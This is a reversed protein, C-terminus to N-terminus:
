PWLNGLDLTNGPEPPAAPALEGLGINWQDPTVTPRIAEATQDNWILFHFPKLKAVDAAFADSCREAIVKLDHEQTSHFFILYDSIARTNTPVNKPQHCTLFFHVRDRRSWRMAAQLPHDLSELDDKVLACEDIVVHFPRTPNTEIYHQVVTSWTVFADRLNNERPTYILERIEGQVMTAYASILEDGSYVKDGDARPFIGNRSDFVMCRADRRARALYMTLTTKGTERRGIAAHLM